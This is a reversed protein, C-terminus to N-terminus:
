AAIREFAEYTGTARLRRELDTAIAADEWVAEFFSESYRDSYWGAMLAMAQEKGTPLPAATRSTLFNTVESFRAPHVSRFSASVMRELTQTAPLDAGPEQESWVGAAVHGIETSSFARPGVDAVGTFFKKMENLRRQLEPLPADGPNQDSDPVVLLIETPTTAATAAFVRVRKELDDNNAAVVRIFAGTSSEWAHQGGTVKAKWPDLPPPQGSAGLSVCGLRKLIGTVFARDTFGEIIM